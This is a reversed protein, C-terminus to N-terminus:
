QLQIEVIRKNNGDVLWFWDPGVMAVGQLLSVTPVPYQLVAQRLPISVKSLTNGSVMWLYDPDSDMCLGYAYPTGGALDWTEIVSGDAPDLKHFRRPNAPDNTNVAWLWNNTSDFTMATPHKLTPVLTLTRDASAFSLPYRYLKPPDDWYSTTWMRGAGDLALAHTSPISFSTIASGDSPDIQYVAADNVDGVWLLTGDFAIGEPRQGAGVWAFANLISAIKGRWKAYLVVDSSGMVFTGGQTYTTGSGDPQTNWGDFVQDTKVLSGSNGLVTVTASSLYSNSDIPVTGSTNGNGSYTVTYYTPIMDDQILVTASAPAGATYAPPSGPDPDITLTVSEDVLDEDHNATIPVVITTTGAVLTMPFPPFGTVQSLGAGSTSLGVDIDSSAAVSSTIVFTATGGNESISANDRSVTLIPYPSVSIAAHVGPSPLMGPGVAMAHIDLSQPNATRTITLTGSSADIKQASVLDTLQTGDDTFYIAANPTATSLTVTITKGSVFLGGDPISGSTGGQEVYAFTVPASINPSSPDSSHVKGAGIGNYEFPLPCGTLIIAVVAWGIFM